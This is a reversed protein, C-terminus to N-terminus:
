SMLAGMLELRGLFEIVDAQVASIDADYEAAIIASITSVNYQGDLLSWVRAGVENLFLPSDIKELNVLVLEDIAERTVIAPNKTAIMIDPHAYNIM